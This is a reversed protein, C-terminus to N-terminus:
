RKKLVPSVSRYRRTRAGARRRARSGLMSLALLALLGSRSSGASRAIRCGCGSDNVRAPVPETMARPAPARDQLPPRGRDSAAPPSPHTQCDETCDAAGDCAEGDDVIGDGCRPASCDSRCANPAGSNAKGKDCEEGGDQVGDGCRAARCDSRCADARKDSNDHGDDCQEHADIVGDGCRALHCDSRCADPADDSNRKGQDCQEDHDVVGDGCRARQCTTRCADARTDDVDVGTDCGEGKDKVGDGCRPMTCDSRCADAAHDDNADGADCEEGSDIAGNGCKASWGADKLMAVTFKLDHTASSAFPEMLQNPRVLAELHAISSGSSYPQCAFLMAHQDDDAGSRRKGDMAVSASLTEMQAASILAKADPLSLTLVPFPLTPLMGAEDIPLAPADFPMPSPLLLGMVGATSASALAGKLTCSSSRPALMVISGFASRSVACDTDVMVPASVPAMKAFDTDAVFGTLQMPRPDVRLTPEGTAFTSPVLRTAEVGDWVLRRVNTSSRVREAATLDNWSKGLDLDRVHASYSDPASDVLWQGTDPNWLSTVGIGHAFEHLIVEVFDEGQDESKGDFGYYFGGLVSKCTSDIASNFHMDVDPEGPRMDYGALSDALASVYILSPDAGAAGVMNLNGFAATPSTAGLVASAEGCGMDEFTMHLVIPVPSDLRAEWQSLAYELALRRQEGLSTGKNGGVPAVPTADSFGAGDLQTVITARAHASMPVALLAVFALLTARRM